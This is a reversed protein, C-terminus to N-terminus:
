YYIVGLENEESGCNTPSACVVDKDEIEIITIEPDSFVKKM